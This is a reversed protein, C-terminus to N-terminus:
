LSRHVVATQHERASNILCPGGLKWKLPRSVGSRHWPMQWEGAGEEIAVIVQDTVAEYVDHRQM